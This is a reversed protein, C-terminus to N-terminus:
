GPGARGGTYGRDARALTRNFDPNSTVGAIALTLLTIFTVGLM